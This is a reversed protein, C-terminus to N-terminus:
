DALQTWSKAARCVTALSSQGEGDERTQEFEHGSLPHHWKVMGDEPVGEKAETKGLMQLLFHYGM